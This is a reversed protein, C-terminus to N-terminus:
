WQEGAGKEWLQETATAAQWATHDQRAKPLAERQRQTPKPCIKQKIKLASQLHSGMQM